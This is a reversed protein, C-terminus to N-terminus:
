MFLALKAPLEIVETDSLCVLNRRSTALRNPSTGLKKEEAGSAGSIMSLSHAKALAPYRSLGIGESELLPQEDVERPEAFNAVANCAM